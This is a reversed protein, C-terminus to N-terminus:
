KGFWQKVVTDERGGPGKLNVKHKSWPRFKHKLNGKSTAGQGTGSLGQQWRPEQVSAWPESGEMILLMQIILALGSM